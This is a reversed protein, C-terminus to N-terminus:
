DGRLHWLRLEPPEQELRLSGGRAVVAKGELGTAYKVNKNQKLCFKETQLLLHFDVSLGGHQQFQFDLSM